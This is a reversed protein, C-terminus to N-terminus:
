QSVVRVTSEVSTTYKTQWRAAYAIAIKRATRLYVCCLMIATPECGLVDVLIQASAPRAKRLYVSRKAKRVEMWRMKM